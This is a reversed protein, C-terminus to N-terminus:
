LTMELQVAAPTQEQAWAIAAEAIEFSERELEIGVFERGELVAAVGTRGSGMFPDLVVGGTPTATLRCLWRMLELPKVTPHGNRRCKVEKGTKPDIHTESDLGGCKLCPIHGLLGLERESRSAKATYFFRSAGGSDSIAPSTLKDLGPFCIGQKDTTYTAGNKGGSTLKGSQEDLMRVPCEPVCEWAPVTETGYNRTVHEYQKGKAVTGDNENHRAPGGNGNGVKRVGVQRCEPTHSLVLNAPWRGQPHPPMVVGGTGNYIGNGMTEKFGKGQGVSRVSGHVGGSPVRCGDVNIGAVGWTLANNAFTGDRPKMAVIIPEYAPKLATGWGDWLAADDTAPATIPPKDIGQEVMRAELQDRHNGGAIHFAGPKRGPCSHPNPGVVEREAGKITGKGHCVPCPEDLWFDEWSTADPNRTKGTANCTDCPVVAAKDIAKSIDHSKPFGSGYVWMVVDRIEWGADEIACMLRHHTRTGGFALLMAGPKAVRLAASAWAHHWAQMTPGDNGYRPADHNDGFWSGRGTKDPSRDTRWHPSKLKDWEKGMFALGYPPDTVISDISNEELTAMVDLCDGHYLM